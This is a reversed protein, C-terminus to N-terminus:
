FLYGGGVLKSPVSFYGPPDFAQNVAAGHPLILTLGGSPNLGAGIYDKPIDFSIQKTNSLVCAASGAHSLGCVIPQPNLLVDDHLGPPAVAGGTCAITKDERLGCVFDGCAHLSAYKGAPLQQTPKTGLSDFSGWCAATGDTRIACASYASATVNKFTGAPVKTQGADKAGWCSIEGTQLVACGFEKGLAVQAVPGSPGGVSVYPAGCAVPTPWNSNLFKGWCSSTGDVTNWACAFTGGLSMAVRDYTGAPVVLVGCADQKASTNLPVLNKATSIGIGAGSRSTARVLKEGNPGTQWYGGDINVAGNSDVFVESPYYEYYKVSRLIGQLIAKKGGCAL